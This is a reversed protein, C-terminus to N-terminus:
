DTKKLLVSKANKYGLRITGIPVKNDPNFKVPKGKLELANERRYGIVSAAEKPNFYINNIKKHGHKRLLRGYIFSDVKQRFAPHFPGALMDRGSLLSESPHLGCRIVKIGKKDFYTILKACRAIAENEDLPMYTGEKFMAALETDRIVLVPYIRVESAGYRVSMKATDMEDKDTSGPLGVMIQHGLKFHYKLIMSSATRISKVDHGRKAKKLIRDSMSQVGLEITSVKCKKLMSLIAKSIFDPRTSLRIGDIKGKQVFPRVENLFDEQRQTPIATFSGGFFGVEIHKTRDRPITKLYRRIRPAIDKPTISRKAGSIKKQSCFICAFPCGEHPIFFPITYHTKM